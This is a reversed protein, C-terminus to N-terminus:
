HKSVKTQKVKETGTFCTLPIKILIANSRYIQYLPCKFLILGELEYFM